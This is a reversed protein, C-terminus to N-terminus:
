EHHLNVILKQIKEKNESFSLTKISQNTIYYNWSKALLAWLIKDQMKVGALKTKIIRKRLLEIPVIKSEDLSYLNDFFRYVVEESYNGEHTLYYYMGGAWSIQLINTRNKLGVMVSAVQEYGQMDKSFLEVNEQNSRRARMTTTTDLGNNCYLRGTDKLTQYASVISAVANYNKVGKIDLLQGFTRHRGCDFTAFSGEVAGRVVSFSVPIGAKIVALLRHHGDILHGDNDFVIPIGNLLWEGKKMTMAYKEVVREAISRNGESTNYYEQARGPTISETTYNM